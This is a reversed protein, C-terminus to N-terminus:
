CYQLCIEAEPLRVGPGPLTRFEVYHKGNFVAFFVLEVDCLLARIFTGGLTLTFTGPGIPPRGRSSPGLARAASM